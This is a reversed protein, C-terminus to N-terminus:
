IDMACEHTCAECCNCEIAEGMEYSYPCVHDPQEPNKDCRCMKVEGEDLTSSMQYETFNVLNGDDYNM